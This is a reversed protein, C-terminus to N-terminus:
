KECERRSLKAKEIGINLELQKNAIHFIDDGEPSAMIKAVALIYKAKVLLHFVGLDIYEDVLKLIENCGDTPPKYKIKM